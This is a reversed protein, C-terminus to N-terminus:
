NNIILTTKSGDPIMDLRVSPTGNVSIIDLKTRTGNADVRIIETADTPVPVTVTLPHTYINKDLTNNLTLEIKDGFDKADLKTESYETAYLVADELFTNWITGDDNKEGLWEFFADTETMNATLSEPNTEPNEEIITHFLFVLMGNQNIASNVAGQWDSATNKYKVNYSNIKYYNEIPIATVGGGTDRMGIYNNAIIEYAKDSIQTMGKTGNEDSVRGFGPKIMMLVDQDPFAMKLIERSGAVEETIRGAEFSYEHLNNGSDLYYGSEAEDTIGWFSHTHSHSAVDFVGQKLIGKWYNVEDQKLVWNGGSTKSALNKTILGLTGVLGNTKFSGVMYDVTKHTGDDHVIVVTASRAGYVKEIKAGSLIDYELRDFYFSYTVTKSKDMSTLTVNYQNDNRWETESTVFSPHTIKIEKEADKKGLLIDYSTCLIDFKEFVANGLTVSEIFIDSYMASIDYCTARNGESQRITETTFMTKTYGNKIETVANNAFWRAAIKYAVDSTAVIAMDGGKVVVSFAHVDDGIDGPLLALAESSLARNTKGILVESTGVAKENSDNGTKLKAEYKSLFATEVTSAASKLDSNDTESVPLIISATKPDFEREPESFLAACSVISLISVVIISLLILKNKM